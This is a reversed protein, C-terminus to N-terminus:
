RSLEAHLFARATRWGREVTSLSVALVGAVERMELGAFFRLEVLRALAPDREELRRLALDLDPLSGARESFALVATDLEIRAASGGRKDTARARVHDVLVSRMAAAATRLFHQRDAFDKSHDPILRLWAEHVLATPQLTGNAGAAIRQARNRLEAYLLEFLQTPATTDGARVRALLVTVSHPVPDVM